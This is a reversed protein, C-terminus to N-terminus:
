EADFLDQRSRALQDSLSKKSDEVSTVGAKAKLTRLQEEDQLIKANLQAEESTLIDDFEAADRHIAKHRKLYAEIIERLVVQCLAPDSHAFRVRIVSSHPPNDVSLGGSIVMAAAKLDNGGGKGLVREAGVATAADECLDLSNLI